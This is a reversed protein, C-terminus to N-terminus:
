RCILLPSVMFGSMKLSSIFSYVEPSIQFNKYQETHVLGGRHITIRDAIQLSVQFSNAGEASLKAGNLKLTNEARM